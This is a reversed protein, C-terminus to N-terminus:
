RALNTLNGIIGIRDMNSLQGQTATFLRCMLNYMNKFHDYKAPPVDSFSRLISEKTYSDNINALLVRVTAVYHDYHESPIKSVYEVAKEKSIGFSTSVSNVVSIFRDYDSPDVKGLNKILSSMYSVDGISQIINQVFRVFNENLRDSPIETLGKVVESNYQNDRSDSRMLRKAIDVFNPSSEFKPNKYLALLMHLRSELSAGPILETILPSYDVFNHRVLVPADSNNVFISTYTISEFISSLYGSIYRQKRKEVIKKRREDASLRPTRKNDNVIRDESDSRDSDSSSSSSDSDDSSDAPAPNNSDVYNDGIVKKFVDLIKLYVEFSGPDIKQITESVKSGVYMMEDIKQEFQDRSIQSATMEFTSAVLIMAFLRLKKSIM